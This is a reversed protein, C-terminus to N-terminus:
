AGHLYQGLNIIKAKLFDEFRSAHAALYLDITDAFPRFTAEYKQAASDRWISEIDAHREKVERVSLSLEENFEVLARHFAILAEYTQDLNSM